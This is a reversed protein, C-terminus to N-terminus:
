SPEQRADRVADVAGLGQPWCASIEASIRELENWAVLDGQTDAQRRKRVPVMRAIIENQRTIEISEGEEEVRHLMEDIREIFKNVELSLM